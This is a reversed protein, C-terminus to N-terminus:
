GSLLAHLGCALLWHLADHGKGSGVSRRHLTSASGCKIGSSFCQVSPQVVTLFANAQQGGPVCRLSAFFMHLAAAAALLGSRFDQQHTWTQSLDCFSYHLKSSSSLSILARLSCQGNEACKTGGPAGQSHVIGEIRLLDAIHDM